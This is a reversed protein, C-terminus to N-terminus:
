SEEGQLLNRIITKPIRLHEKVSCPAAHTGQMSTDKSFQAKPSVGAAQVQPLLM